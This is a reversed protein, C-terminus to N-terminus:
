TMAPEPLPDIGAAIMQARLQKVYNTLITLRRRSDEAEAASRTAADSARAAAEQALQAQIAARQANGESAIQGTTTKGIEELLKRNQDELETIRARATLITERSVENTTDDLDQGSKRNKYVMGILLTVISVGATILLNMLSPNSTEMSMGSDGTPMVAPGEGIAGEQEIYDM